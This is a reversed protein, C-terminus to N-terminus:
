SEITNKFYIKLVCNKNAQLNLDNVINNQLDVQSINVGKVKKLGKPLNLTVLTTKPSKLKLVVIGRKINFDLDAKIQNDLVVNEVNGKVVESPLANFLTISDKGSNIFMNQLANCFGINKDIEFSTYLEYEAIGMGSNDGSSLILNSTLFTKLMTKIIEYSNVSDGCTALATSM